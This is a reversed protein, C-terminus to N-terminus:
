GSCGLDVGVRQDQEDLVYQESVVARYLRLRALATVDDLTWAEGGHSLSRESFVEIAGYAETARVEDAEGALYVGRGTGIPATSDFIVASMRPRAAINRSHRAEPKSVWIFERYDAHAFYVPSAWPAGDDDTTAVVMYLNADVIERALATAASQNV